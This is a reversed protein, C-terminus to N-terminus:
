RPGGYEPRRLYSNGLLETPTLLLQKLQEVMQPNVNQPPVGQSRILEDAAKANNITWKTSGYKSASAAATLPAGVFPDHVTMGINFMTSLGGNPALSGFLKMAKQVGGPNTVNKIAAQEEPTFTKEFNKSLAIKKFQGQLAKEMGAQTYNTGATIEAANFARKMIDSKIATAYAARADEYPSNLLIGDVADLLGLMKGGDPTMKGSADVMTSAQSNLAQRLRELHSYNPQSTNGAAIDSAIKRFEEVTDLTQKFPKNAIPAFPNDEGAKQAVKDFGDAIQNIENLSVGSQGVGNDAAKYLDTAKQHWDEATPPAVASGRGLLSSVGKAVGYAASGLLGGFGAGKAANMAREEGSNADQLLGGAGGYAAGTGAAGSLGEGFTPLAKVGIAMGGVKAAASRYPHQAEYAAQNARQQALEKNYEDSYNFGNGQIANITANMLGAGAAGLKTSGGMTLFDTGESGTGWMEPRGVPGPAPTDVGLHKKLAALAGDANEGTVKYKKGDPGTILFQPM